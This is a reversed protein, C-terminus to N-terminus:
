QVQPALRVRGQPVRTVLLVQRVPKVQQALQDMQVQLVRKVLVQLARLVLQESM